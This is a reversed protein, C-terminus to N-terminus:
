TLYTVLCLATATKHTHTHTHRTRNHQGWAPWKHKIYLLKDRVACYVSETETIFVLWDINYLSIIATQEWIWVFCMCVRYPCFTSNNFTLINTCIASVERKHVEINLIGIKRSWWNSYWQKLSEYSIVVFWSSVVHSAVWIGGGWGSWEWSMWAAAKMLHPQNSEHKMAHLQGRTPRQLM